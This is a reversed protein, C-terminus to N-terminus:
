VDSETEAVGGGFANTAAIAAEAGSRLFTEVGDAARALIEPLAAEEDKSFAGIVHDIADQGSRGIGVRLRPFDLTNLAFIISKLGNHGGDSGGRRFRLRGFPLNIDDCVVLVRETPIKYFAVCPAVSEGSDNMYTQPLLFFAGLPPAEAFKGSWKSRWALPGHRQALLELVRFGVNHRTREYGRGPNGLGV